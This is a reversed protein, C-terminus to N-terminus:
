QCMAHADQQCTAFKAAQREECGPRGGAVELQDALAQDGAASQLWFQKCRAVSKRHLDQCLQLAATMGEAGQCRQMTGTAPPDGPAAPDYAHLPWNAEIGCDDWAITLWADYEEKSAPTGKRVVIIPAQGAPEKMCTAGAYSPIIQKWWKGVQQARLAPVQQDEQYIGKITGSHVASLLISAQRRWAPAPRKLMRFLAYQVQVDIDPRIVDKPTWPPDAFVWGSAPSGPSSESAPQQRVCSIAGFGDCFSQDCIKGDGTTRTPTVAGIDHDVMSMDAREFGQLRCFEDAAPQGCDNGWVRCIDVRYGAHTPADFMKEEAGVTAALLGTLAAVVTHM